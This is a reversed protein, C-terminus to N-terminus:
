QQLKPLMFHMELHKFLFNVYKKISLICHCLKININISIDQKSLYQVSIISMCIFKRLM